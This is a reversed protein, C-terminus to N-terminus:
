RETFKFSDTDDLVLDEPVEKVGDHVIHSGGILIVSIDVREKLINAIFPLVSLVRAQVSMLESDSNLAFGFDFDNITSLEKDLERVM